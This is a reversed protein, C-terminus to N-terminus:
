TSGFTRRIERVIADADYPKTFHKFPVREPHSSAVLVLMGPFTTEFLAALQLGNMSGPMRVDTLLVDPVLGSHTLSLAEDANCAEFVRFGAERLADAVVLRILVEDEVVLVTRAAGQEPNEATETV